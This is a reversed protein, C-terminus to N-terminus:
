LGPTAGTGLKMVHVLMCSQAELEEMSKSSAATRAGPELESNFVDAPVRKVGTKLRTRLHGTYVDSCRSKLPILSGSSLPHFAYVFSRALGTM